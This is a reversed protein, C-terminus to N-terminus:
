SLGLERDIAEIMNDRIVQRMIPTNRIEPHVEIAVFFVENGRQGAREFMEILEERTM